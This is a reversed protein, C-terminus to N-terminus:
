IELVNGCEDILADLKENVYWCINDLPNKVTVEAPKVTKTEKVVHGIYFMNKDKYSISIHRVHSRVNKVYKIVNDFQNLAEENIPSKIYIDFEGPIADHNKFEFWEKIIGEGFVVSVLERVSSVTGAKAYWKMNNKLIDRKKELALKPSYYMSKQEVAFYDLVDEDLDDVDSYCQTKDACAKLKKFQQQLAYSLAQIEPDKEPWIDILGGETFKIM